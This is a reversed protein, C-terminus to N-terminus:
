VVPVTRAGVTSAAERPIRVELVGDRLHATLDQTRLGSPLPVARRFLGFTRENARMQHGDPVPPPRQGGIMLVSGQVSVEIRDRPAGPLDACIIVETNSELVSITPTWPPVMAMWAVLGPNSLVALLRDMQEQVHQVPDKEAPIPAYVADGVPAERGTIARYLNTVQGIAEDLDAM